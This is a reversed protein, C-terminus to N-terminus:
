QELAPFSATRSVQKSHVAPPHYLVQLAEKAAPADAGCTLLYSAGAPLGPVVHQAGLLAALGAAAGSKAASSHELRPANQAAALIAQVVQQVERAPDSFMGQGQALINVLAGSACAAAGAIQGAFTVSHYWEARDTPMVESNLKSSKLPM